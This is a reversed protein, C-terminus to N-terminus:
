SFMWGAEIQHALASSFEIWACVQKPWRGAWERCLEEYRSDGTGLIILQAGTAVIREIAQMLIDIGKQPTLRTIMGLLPVLILWSLIGINM